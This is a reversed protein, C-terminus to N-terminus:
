GAEFTEPDVDAEFLRSGCSGCTSALVQRERCCSSVTERDMAVRGGCSPCRDLWLRLVGAVETRDRFGLGRWGLCREQLVATAADSRYAAKSEWRANRRGDLLAM